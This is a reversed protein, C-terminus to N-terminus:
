NHSHRSYVDYFKNISCKEVINKKLKIDIRMKCHM